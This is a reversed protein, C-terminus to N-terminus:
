VFCPFSTARAKFLDNKNTQTKNHFKYWAKIPRVCDESPILSCLDWSTCPFFFFFCLCCCLSLTIAWTRLKSVVVYLFIMRMPQPSLALTAVLGWGFSLPVALRYSDTFLAYYELAFESIRFSLVKRICVSFVAAVAAFLHPHLTFCTVWLHVLIWTVPSATTHSTVGRMSPPTQIESSFLTESLCIGPKQYEGPHKKEGVEHILLGSKQSHREWFQSSFAALKPEHQYMLATESSSCDKVMCPKYSGFYVSPGIVTCVVSYLLLGKVAIVICSYTLAASSLVLVSHINTSPCHFFSYQPPPHYNLFM